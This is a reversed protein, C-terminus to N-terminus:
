RISAEIRAAERPYTRQFWDVLDAGEPAGEDVTCVGNEDPGHWKPHAAVAADMLAEGRRYEPTAWYALWRRAADGDPGVVNAKRICAERFPMNPLGSFILMAEEHHANWAAHERQAQEWEHELEEFMIKFARRVLTMPTEPPLRPAMALVFARFAEEGSLGTRDDRQKEWVERMIRVMEATNM